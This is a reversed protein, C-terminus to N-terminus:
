HNQYRGPGGPGGPRNGGLESEHRAFGADDSGTEEVFRRGRETMDKAMGAAYRMGQERVEDSWQGFTEDERRTRPLLAGLLLGAALGVVGVMVPNESMFRSASGYVQSSGRRARDYHDRSFTDSAWDAAQEYTDRAWEAAQEYTESARESAERYLEGAQDGGGSSKGQGSSQGRSQGSGSMGMGADKDQHRQQENQGLTSGASRSAGTGGTGGMPHSTHSALTSSQPSHSASSGPPTPPQGASGVSSGASIKAASVVDSGSGTQNKKTDDM